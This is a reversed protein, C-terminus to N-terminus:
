SRDISPVCSKKLADKTAEVVALMEDRTNYLHPSYRLKGERLSIQINKRSISEFTSQPNSNKPLNITVIGARESPLLPSYLSVGEIKQLEDTLIQTLALIHDQITEIGVELLTGLAAHMGWMGPINVTGGEYRRASKALPQDYDFFNWPTEVGLWGVYKQQVRNQLEDTIYLFGTGQPGMQWKQAGAAMADIKMNRVDIDIAGVAQIGDVIFHIGRERCLRGISAMDARYGSLFQVASLAVVRTRSTLGVEIQEVTFCGNRSKIVDIEVGLRKLPIYPYVNAPFELDNLLIRDGAKWDLGSVVINLADSTNGTLAIREHSEAHVLQQVLIKTKEIQPLDSFWTEIKGSSRDQLHGTMADLVRTSMPSTAAHNLYIIGKSTHPFLQRIKELQLDPILTPNEITVISEPQKPTHYTHTIISLPLLFIM